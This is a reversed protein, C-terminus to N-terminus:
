QETLIVKDAYRLKVAEIVQPELVITGNRNRYLAITTLARFTPASGDLANLLGAQEEETAPPLLSKLACCDLSYLLGAQVEETTPPLSLLRRWLKYQPLLEKPTLAAFVKRSVDKLELRKFKFRSIERLATGSHKTFGEISITQLKPLGLLPFLHTILDPTATVEQVTPLCVTRLSSIPQLFNRAVLPFELIRIGNNSDPQPVCHREIFDFLVSMSLNTKPELWVSIKRLRPLKLHPLISNWDITSRDWRPLTSLHEISPGNMLILGGAGDPLRRLHFSVCEKCAGSIVIGREVGKFWDEPDNEYIGGTAFDKWVKFAQEPDSLDFSQEVDCLDIMFIFNTSLISPIEHVLDGLQRVKDLITARTGNLEIFLEQIGSFYKSMIRIIQPLAALEANSITLKGGNIDSKEFGTYAMIAPYLLLPSAQAFQVLSERWEPALLAGCIEGIMEQPLNLLHSRQDSTSHAELVAASSRSADPLPESSAM